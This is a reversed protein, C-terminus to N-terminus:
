GGTENELERAAQEAIEGYIAGLDDSSDALQRHAEVVNEKFARTSPTPDELPQWDGPPASEDRVEVVRELLLDGISNAQELGTARLVQECRDELGLREHPDTLGVSLHGRLSAADRRDVIRNRRVWESLFVEYGGDEWREITILGEADDEFSLGM